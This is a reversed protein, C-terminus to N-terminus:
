VAVPGRSRLPQTATSSSLPALVGRHASRANGSAANMSALANATREVISTGDRFRARFIVSANNFLGEKLSIVIFQSGSFRTKFLQGIHQTHSLDLAADIEDLLYMPAPKFQLLSMILSLAILSRQGGSLETLSQKWVQGLRVKVELGQTVDQGEPPQLKAYNGPLLEAFIDGFDGNVKNWTTQLADRKYRDLEGITEEIKSKDGLVTSLMSKLESEKKEVSDIMNMVKTNVKKKLGSHQEELKKCMRRVESMNHKRFDYATGSHGFLRQEQLIWEYRGEIAKITKEVLTVEHEAKELDHRLEKLELETDAIEQKKSKRATELAHRGEDFASLAAREKKLAADTQDSETQMSDIDKQARLVDEQATQTGRRLEELSDTAEEIEKDAGELQLEMTRVENQRIKVTSSQRQVAAKLTKVEAKLEDIKSDKNSEFEAMEKQIRKAEATADTRRGTAATLAAQLEDITKRAAAVESIIRTANSGTVQGELLAVEHRRLELERKLKGWKVMEQKAGQEDQELAELESKGAALQTEVSRLEQVKVLLGGTHAQSGGSLTGAPDYVDGDLTVSRMKVRNDFTVKKATEADACILTNGFVWEMAKSVEDDYGVLSLALHVRSPDGAIQQAAGIKHSAAVFSSIKTLPILTVRQRLRAGKLLKAGTDDDEVIVNYLRGGACIELATSYKHNEAKLDLLTAVLGKVKSRDFAPEPDSYDFSVRALGSRIRDRTELLSNIRASLNKKRQVVEREKTEDWGSMSLALSVKRVQAEAAELQKLLGAGEKEAKEAQPGKTKVEKELSRIKLKVQEIETTAASIASRADALQGMYGGQGGAAQSPSKAAMGTLLSQLLEDQKSLESTSADFDSKLTDFSKSINDLQRAKQNRAQKSAALASEDAALKKKEEEISSVKLDLVTKAKVLDHQLTKSKELLNKLKGGRAMEQERKRENEALEQEISAIQRKLAEIFACKEGVDSRKAAVLSSKEELKVTSTQWEYAKALRTLRELESTARQYEIFSRKEERLKDLKPIIEEKLLTDIEKVKMEKKAITKIAKEKRDEFMRTGAAEEIMSLIEAPKMNLVKTIKGQMILFNPNNINLQVSQFMNQVAQQTAKHGNILYKSMGGMAIQRTVTIQSYAEFSVPSRRQDTNDFVITVSARTVGAQGRKYILDQLNTARVASMNTIGLVFCIADLINSKGSGNLGTIANFSEDFGSVHTRVPYSKFGDIILEEIRM